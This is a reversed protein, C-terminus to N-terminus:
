LTSQFFRWAAVAADIDSSTAGIMTAPLYQWGSPWTHGAGRVAFLEVKTAAACGIAKRREVRTGDEPVFDPIMSVAVDRCANHRRWFGFTREVSLVEGLEKGEFQVEGGDWPVIPDDTGNILLVSIPAKECRARRRAVNRPMSGIVAAFARLKSTRACALRHAMMAGDSVGAVFVAHPDVERKEILEDILTTIFGVDDILERQAVYRDVNRGDNWHGGIGQPYAVLFDDEVALGDLTGFRLAVADDDDGLGGHLVLVLPRTGQGQVRRPDFIAVDRVIGGHKFVYTKVEAADDAAKRPATACGWLLLLPLALCAHTRRAM